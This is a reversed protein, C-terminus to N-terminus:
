DLTVVPKNVVRMALESANFVRIREAEVGSEILQEALRAAENAGALMTLEGRKPDDKDYVMLATGAM